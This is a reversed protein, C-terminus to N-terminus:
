VKGIHTPASFSAIFTSLSPVQTMCSASSFLPKLILFSGGWRHVGEGGRIM